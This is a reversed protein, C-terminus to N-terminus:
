RSWSMFVSSRRVVILVTKIVFWEVLSFFILTMLFINLAFFYTMSWRRNRRATVFINSKSLFFSVLFALVTSFVFSWSSLSSSLFFFIVLSCYFFLVFSSFSFSSSSFFFSRSCSATWYMSKAKEFKSSLTFSRLRSLFLLIDSLVRSNAESDTECNWDDITNASECDCVRSVFKWDCVRCALKWDCIKVVCLELSSFMSSIDCIKMVKWISVVSFILLFSIVISLVIWSVFRDSSSETIM